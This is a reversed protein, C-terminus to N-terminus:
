NGTPEAATQVVEDQPEGPAQQDQQEATANRARAPPASVRATTFSPVSVRWGQAQDNIDPKSVRDGSRIKPGMCVRGGIARVWRALSLAQASPGAHAANEAQGENEAASQEAQGEAAAPQGEGGATLNSAPQSAAQKGAGTPLPEPGALSATSLGAVSIALGLLLTRTTDPM